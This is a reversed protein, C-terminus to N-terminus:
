NMKVVGSHPLYIFIIERKCIPCFLCRILKQPQLSWAPILVWPAWSGPGQTEVVLGRGRWTRAELFSYVEYHLPISNQLIYQFINLITMINLVPIKLKRSFWLNLEIIVYYFIVSVFHQINKYNGISKQRKMALQSFCRVLYGTWLMFTCLNPLPNLSTFIELFFSLPALDPQYTHRHCSTAARDTWFAKVPTPNACLLMWLLM